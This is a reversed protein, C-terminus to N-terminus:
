LTDHEFLSISWDAGNSYRQMEEESALLLLPLQRKGIGRKAPAHLFGAKRLATFVASNKGALTVAGIATKSKRLRSKLLDTLAKRAAATKFFCDFVYIKRAEERLCLYGDAQGNTDQHLFTEYPYLPNATRWTFIEPTKVAHVPSGANSEELLHAIQTIDAVPMVARTNLVSFWAFPKPYVLQYVPKVEKWGMKLFGPTSMDGGFGIIFLDGRQRLYDYCHTALLQFLGRRRHDPHTMTDCSQYITRCNGEISYQEPIAGYYAGIEGTENQAVFGIFPGAPNDRYKWEFFALPVATGFAARM